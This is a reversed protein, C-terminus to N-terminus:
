AVAYKNLESYIKANKGRHAKELDYDDQLNLWFRESNGFIKSLRIATDASIGRTGNIIEGLRTPSIHLKQAVRYKTLNMPKMFEEYLIEGPHILEYQTNISM